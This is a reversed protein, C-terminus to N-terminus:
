SAEALAVRSGGIWVVAVFPLVVAVGSAITLEPVSGVALAAVVLGALVACAASRRRYAEMSLMGLVLVPLVLSWWLDVRGSGSFALVLGGYVLGDLVRESRTRPKMAHLAIGVLGLLFSWGIFGHVGLSIEHLTAHLVGVAAMALGALGTAALPLNSRGPTPSPLWRWAGLGGGLWIGALTAPVLWDGWSAPRPALLTWGPVTWVLVSLGAVASVFPVLGIWAWRGPALAAGLIAATALLAIERMEQVGSAGLAALSGLIAMQRQADELLTLSGADEQNSWSERAYALTAFVAIAAAYASPALGGTRVADVDLIGAGVLALGTAPGLPWVWSHPRGDLRVM